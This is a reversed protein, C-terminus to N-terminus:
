PREFTQIPAGLIEAARGVGIIQFTELAQVGQQADARGLDVYKSATLDAGSSRLAAALQRAQMSANPNDLQAIEMAVREAATFRQRFALKTIATAPPVISTVFSSEAASKSDFWYWGDVPFTYSAIENAFLSYGPAHVFSPAYLIGQGIVSKYFGASM